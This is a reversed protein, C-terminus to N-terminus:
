LAARIAPLRARFSASQAAVRDVVGTALVNQMGPDGSAAGTRIREVAAGMRDRVAALVTLPDLGGYEQCMLALRKAAQPVGIDRYLPVSNWAAFAVDDLPRGPGAVDWDLVGTLRGQVATWNYTAFDNHCVIEGDDLPRAAHRWPLARDPRFGRVVEHYRRLWSMADSLVSDPTLGDDPDRSEGPLWSLVERGREDTGLM